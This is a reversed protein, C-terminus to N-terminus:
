LMASQLSSRLRESVAAIAEEDGQPAEPWEDVQTGWYERPTGPYRPVLHVHLHPVQHGLVFSYIHEAGETEQLARSVRSMVFGLRQAETETIPFGCASSLGAKLYTDVYNLYSRQPTSALARGPLLAITAPLTAALAILTLSLRWTRM